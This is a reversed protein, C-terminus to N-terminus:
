RRATYVERVAAIAQDVAADDIHRHTVLRLSHANWVSTKIGKEILAAVWSAADRGTGGIEVMILNTAVRNPNVLKPDIAHLGDALKRARTHDDALRDVMKELAVIGAAAFVGAQRMTGGVMRRYVRARDIFARSGCLVSGVPGSLGKSVCFGISDAHRGIEAARVGLAVAANFVRAGDIHVPIGKEAAVKKAAALAELPIVAGGADNHTTEMCVLSTPFQMRTMAPQIMDHLAEVDPTGREAPYIRPFLGALKAIGGLESRMIHSEADLLVEGGDRNAHTLLAVLNSMTGSAVMLGAEQGLAAASMEELKRVTPDGDRGDDGLEARRMADRMEETPHTVTDTRLDIM